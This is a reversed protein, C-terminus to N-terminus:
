PRSNASHLNRAMEGLVREREAKRGLKGDLLAKIGISLIVRLVQM